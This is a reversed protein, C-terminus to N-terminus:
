GRGKVWEREQFLCLLLVDVTEREREEGRMSEGLTDRLGFLDNRKGNRKENM